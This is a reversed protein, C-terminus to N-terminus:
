RFNKMLAKDRLGDRGHKRILMDRIEDDQAAFADSKKLPIRGKYVRQGTIDALYLRRDGADISAAVVCEAWGCTGAPLPLGSPSRELALGDFKDVDRGSLLGFLPVLGAQQDSLMNLAFRGSKLILEHTYNLPSLIVAARPTDPVLTAPMVWTAIQGNERGDARATVIYIEHDTLSFISGPYADEETNM